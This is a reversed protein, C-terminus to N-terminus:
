REDAGIDPSGDRADGDIDEDALGPELVTGADIAASGDALHVNGGAADMFHETGQDALNTELTAQGDNRQIISHTVLNNAIYASTNPWRYEINSFPMQLSVVTNHVVQPGCAQELAIGTDFGAASGFLEPRGAWITNNRIIGGYHGVFGNAQPCPDDDYDRSNGNGNEGLGFGIGRACDVITNREVLTDRAGSWFHIAHESLGQDCWFGEIYNDRIEWGWGLHTDIGGTYCNSVQPRGADTLELHSCAVTGFDAFYGEASGNIKIAQEGPDIARVRYIMTNDVNASTGGSVHIPHWMPRQVTIEAITVDSARVNLVSGISYGGDLVVTSPDGSVSRLTVGPTDFIIFGAGSLDYMGDQLMITRGSPADNIAAAVDDGPGLEIVDGEPPPLPDCGGGPPPPPPDDTDTSGTDVGTTSASTGTTPGGTGSDDTDGASADATQSASSPGTTGDSPDSGPGDDGCAPTFSVSLIGILTTTTRSQARQAIKM